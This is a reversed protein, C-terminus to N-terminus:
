VGNVSRLRSHGHEFSVFRFCCRSQPTSRVRGNGNRNFSAQLVEISGVWGHLLSCYLKSSLFDASQVPRRLLSWGATERRSRSPIMVSNPFLVLQLLLIPVATSSVHSVLCRLKVAPPHMTSTRGFMWPGKVHANNETTLACVGCYVLGWPWISTASRVVVGSESARIRQM